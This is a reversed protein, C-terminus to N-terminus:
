RGAGSAGRGPGPTIVVGGAPYVISERQEDWRVRYQEHGERGLLEVIEGRRASEGHIGRVEIMDGVHAGSSATQKTAM